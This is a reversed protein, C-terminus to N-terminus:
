ERDTRLVTPGYWHCVLLALEVDLRDAIIPRGRREVARGVRYKVSNFHLDLEESALKYSSGCRLFIRLTDRLRADNETDASLDGLVDHVWQRTEGIDGGILAAAYLGPDSAAIVTPVPKEGAVAVERAAEAARHSKRFGDTGHGVTGIAVSPADTRKHAFRRVAAIADTPEARYPLWAWGSTRDAAVFLPAAGTNAAQGLERAFRQLRALEDGQINLDPYWMVVAVHHWRLPYRISETDADVDGPKKGALVERVRVARVSNQNELWREREDEYVAVVQQSIWDIYEFLTATITELVAVRMPTPIDADRVEGFVVENMRRQGLRYARVLANVPVGHQALRRAYELAATPAEAREVAIDHRLAHLVTDVNGEVSAGLLEVLRADGRLEAIEDELAARILGSVDVLRDNLRTGIEAVYSGVDVGNAIDAKAM